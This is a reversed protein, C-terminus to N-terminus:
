QSTQIAPTPLAEAILFDARPFSHVAAKSGGQRTFEVRATTAVCLWRQHPKSRNSAFASPSFIGVNVGGHVDRASTFRFASIGAGRMDRGLQQSSVYSNKASIDASHTAFPPLTLDVAATTRVDATFATVTHQLPQIEAATGELLVIQYYAREAFATRLEESGYWIGREQVAGFRSGNKLPAYRLPTFLLYNLKAPAHTPPKASEILRELLDHEEVSDVLSRTALHHQDEVVRWPRGRYEVVNPKAGCLTWINSSM